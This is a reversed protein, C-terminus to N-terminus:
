IIMTMIKSWVLHMIKKPFITELAKLWIHYNTLSSIIIEQSSSCTVKNVSPLSHAVERGKIKVYFSLMLQDM